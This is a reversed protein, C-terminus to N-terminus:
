VKRKIEHTKVYNQKQDWISNYNKEKFPSM